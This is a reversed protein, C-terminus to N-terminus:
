ADEVVTVPFAGRAGAEAPYFHGGLAGNGVPVCRWWDWAIRHTPIPAAHDGMGAACFVAVTFVRHDHHGKSYYGAPDSDSQALSQIDLPYTKM